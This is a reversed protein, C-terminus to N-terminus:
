KLTDLYTTLNHMDADTYKELLLVHEAYPDVTKVTTGATRNFSRYVGAKDRLAVTFDDIRVLDGTFVHNGPLTVTVAIPQKKGGIGVNPFLFKQQLTATSYKGGIGKLDGTTSHCKSCGGAGNFYAEGAKRDGSLLQTPHDDYGSRLIKNIAQTLFQSLDAAEKDQFKFRHPPSSQLYTALESGHLMERRDHLVMTSRILDPATATGRTDAGHCRACNGAYITAGRDASPADVPSKPFQAYACPAALLLAAYVYKLLPRTVDRLGQTEDTRSM